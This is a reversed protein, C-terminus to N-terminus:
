SLITAVASTATAKPEVARMSVCLIRCAESQASALATAAKGALGFLDAFSM